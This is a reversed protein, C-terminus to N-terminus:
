HARQDCVAIIKLNEALEGGIIQYFKEMSDHDRLYHEMHYTIYFSARLKSDALSLVDSSLIYYAGVGQHGYFHAETTKNGKKDVFVKTDYKGIDHYYIACGVVSDLYRNNKIYFDYATKMHETITLLHHHNDHAMDKKDEMMKNLDMHKGTKEIWIGDWGEFYYPCQFNKLQNLVVQEPVVRERTEARKKMTDPDCVVVLCIKECYPFRQKLDKLFGMRRRSSLNTADYIVNHNDALNQFIRKYVERFIKQNDGQISEDGYWEGRIVDSSVIQANFDKALRAAVTSKGSYFPGVMMIFKLM